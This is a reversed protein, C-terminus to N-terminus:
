VNVRRKKLSNTSEDKISPVVIFNLYAEAKKLIGNLNRRDGGKTDGHIIETSAAKKM